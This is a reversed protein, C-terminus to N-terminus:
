NKQYLTSYNKSVGVCVVAPIVNKKVKNKFRRGFERKEGVSLKNWEIGNFLDKLVFETGVDLTGTKSIAKNM